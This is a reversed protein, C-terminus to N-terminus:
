AKGDLLEELEDMLMKMRRIFADYPEPKAMDIGAQLLLDYSLDSDGRGVVEHIAKRADPDGADLKEMLLCAAAMAPPWFLHEYSFFSVDSTIWDAAFIEDVTAGGEHHGYYRRLIELYMKSLQPGTPPEGSAIMDQIKSEFEAVANWHFFQSSIRDLQQVLSDIRDRRNTALDKLYDYHLLNGLYILGNGYIPPDYRTDPFRDKPIDASCMIFMAAGALSRSSRQDGRYSMITYPPIGGVPPFIAYMARKEPLPPLHLWPKLLRERMRDQFEPGLTASAAIIIEMSERVTFRQKSPPLNRIDVYNMRDLDLARRCLQIYRHYVALNKQAVNLMMHYSGQPMGDRLFFLADIGDKFNRYKAITLDTEIRRTLLMGFVDEFSRLQGLYANAAAIRVEKKLSRTLSRYNSTDVVVSKGDEGIIEIWGLNSDLLTLYTDSTLQPLRAMSRLISQPEPSLTHPAERLSQLIRRRHVALRPEEVLWQNLRASGIARLEDVVFSVAAEVQTEFATGTEYQQKAKGSRTDVASVLEGYVSMKHARIRLDSVEDLGDALSKASRGMTGKIRGIAGLKQQILAREGEWARDDQYIESLDWVYEHVNDQENQQSVTQGCTLIIVTLVCLFEQKM